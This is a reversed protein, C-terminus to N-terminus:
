QWLLVVNFTMVNCKDAIELNRDDLWANEEPNVVIEALEHAIIHIVRKNSLARSFHYRATPSSIMQHWNSFVCGGCTSTVGVTACYFKDNADYTTGYGHDGCYDSCM